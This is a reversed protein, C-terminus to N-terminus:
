LIAEAPCIADQGREKTLLGPYSYIQGGGLDHQWECPTPHDYEEGRHRAPYTTAISGLALGPAPRDIGTSLIELEAATDDREHGHCRCIAWPRIGLDGRARGVQPDAIQCTSQSAEISTLNPKGKVILKLDLEILAFYRAIRVLVIRRRACKMSLLLQGSALAANAADAAPHTAFIRGLRFFNSVLVIDPCVSRTHATGRVHSFYHSM